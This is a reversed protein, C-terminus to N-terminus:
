LRAAYSIVRSDALSIWDQSLGLIMARAEEAATSQGQTTLVVSWHMTVFAVSGAHVNEGSAPNM